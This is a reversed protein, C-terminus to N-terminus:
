FPFEKTIRQTSTPKRFVRLLILVYYTTWMTSQHACRSCITSDCRIEPSIIATAQGSEVRVLLGTKWLSSGQM